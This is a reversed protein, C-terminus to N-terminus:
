TRRDDQDPGAISREVIAACWLLEDPRRGTLQMGVPLGSTPIPLSIAPLGTMNALRTHAVLRFGLESSDDLGPACIPVTPELIADVRAMVAQTEESLARARARAREYEVFKIRRGVELRARVDDGLGSAPDAAQAGYHQAAEFFMITNTVEVVEDSSPLTVELVAHDRALRELAAEMANAVAPESGTLRARSMGFTRSVPTRSAEMTAVATPRSASFLRDITSVVEVSRALVGVHDLTESLPLVGATPFRGFPPKYGVVGCLAAPIRISGGTDTGIAVDASGTAVAVASGSSSGGPILGAGWPNAPTGTYANVGTVGFALEHLATLGILVGGAELLAAVIPAHDRCIEAHERTNSGGSQRHGRVAIMDKVAFTARQLPGAPRAGPRAADLAEEHFVDTYAGGDKAFGSAGLAKNVRDRIDPAESGSRAKKGRGAQSMM